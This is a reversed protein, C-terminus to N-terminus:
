RFYNKMRDLTKENIKIKYKENLLLDYSNYLNDRIKANTQNAFEVIEKTNKSLSKEFINKIKVLYINNKEDSVLSFSNKGMSYLLNVSDRTFKSTDKISSIQLNNIVGNSLESFDKNSFEKKQIKKMLDTHIEYKNMEFFDDRVRKLFENNELNPLIKKLNKIEYVLFFDNKDVIELIKKDRNKYIENLLEDNNENPYYENIIKVKLNYKKSIENISSNNSILDEIEDIKSFFNNTFEVEGTINEPTIKILSIDVKEVYFKEENKKVHKILDDNSIENKNIYM